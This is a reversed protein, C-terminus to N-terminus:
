IVTHYLYVCDLLLWIHYVQIGDVGIAKSGSCALVYLLFSFLFVVGEGLDGGIIWRLLWGLRGRCWIGGLGVLRRRLLLILM